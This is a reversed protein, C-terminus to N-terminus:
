FDLIKEVNERLFFNPTLFIEKFKLFTFSLTM